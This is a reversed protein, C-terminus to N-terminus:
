GQLNRWSWFPQRPAATASGRTGEELRAASYNSVSICKYLMTNASTPGIVGRRPKLSSSNAQTMHDCEVGVFFFNSFSPCWRGKELREAPNSTKKLLPPVCSTQGMNLHLGCSQCADPQVGEGGCIGGLGSVSALRLRLAAEPEREWARQPTIPVM